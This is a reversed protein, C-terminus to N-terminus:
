QVLNQSTDCIVTTCSLAKKKTLYAHVPLIYLCQNMLIIDILHSHVNIFLNVRNDFNITSYIIISRDIFNDCAVYM